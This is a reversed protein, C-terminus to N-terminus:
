VNLGSPGLLGVKGFLFTSSSQDTRSIGFAKVKVGPNANSISLCTAYLTAGTTVVDDLVLIGGAPNGLSKAEITELHQSYDFRGGPPQLSMKPVAVTRRVIDEYRDGLRAHAMREALLGLPTKAGPRILSHGPAPVIVYDDGFLGRLPHNVPLGNILRVVYDAASVPTTEGAPLIFKGNKVHLVLEKGKEV